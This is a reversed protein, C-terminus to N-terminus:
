HSVTVRHVLFLPVFYIAGSHQLRSSFHCLFFRHADFPDDFADLEHPLLSEMDRKMGPLGRGAGSTLEVRGFLRLPEARSIGEIHGM